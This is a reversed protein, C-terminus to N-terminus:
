RKNSRVSATLLMQMTTAWLSSAVIFDPQVSHAKNDSNLRQRKCVHKNTKRRKKCDQPLYKTYRDRLGQGREPQGGVQSGINQIVGWSSRQACTLRQSNFTWQTQGQDWSREWTVGVAKRSGMDEGKRNITITHLLEKKNWIQERPM